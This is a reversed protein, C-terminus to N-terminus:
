LDDETENQTRTRIWLTLTAKGKFSKCIKGQVRAATTQTWLNEVENGIKAFKKPLGGEGEKWRGNIRIRQEFENQAEIVFQLNFSEPAM